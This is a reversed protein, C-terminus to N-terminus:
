SKKGFEKEMLSEYTLGPVGKKCIVVTNFDQNTERKISTPHFGCANLTKVFFPTDMLAKHRDWGTLGRGYIANKWFEREGGRNNLYNRAVLPFEPYSIMLLGGEKLIRRYECLITTHQEEPIHEITHFMYIKDFFDPTFPYPIKTIDWKRVTKNFPVMDLNTYNVKSNTVMPMKGCGINLIQLPQTM